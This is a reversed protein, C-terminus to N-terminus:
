VRSKAPIADRFVNKVRPLLLYVLLAGSIVFGTAGEAIRGLFLNVINGLVQAAILAVALWWGWLRRRFWGIGAAFLAASLLLFPIGVMWGLPALERFARPNLRWARDLATGPRLLTTGALSAMAAGFFLFVGMATMGPPSPVEAFGNASTLRRSYRFQSACLSEPTEPPSERLPVETASCEQRSPLFSILTNGQANQGPQRESLVCSGDSGQDALDAPM